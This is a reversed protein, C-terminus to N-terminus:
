EAEEEKGSVSFLKMIDQQTLKQPLQEGPTILQEFLKRKGRGLALVQEEISDHMVLRLVQVNKEQGMRHARDAAQDEASPNWWPDYHIVMDAGTLNLGTGGAKLSILFVPKEGANFRDM